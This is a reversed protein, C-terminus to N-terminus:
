FESRELTGFTKFNQFGLLESLTLLGSIGFTEFAPIVRFIEGTKNRNRFIQHEEFISCESSEFDYEPTIELKAVRFHFSLSIQEIGM